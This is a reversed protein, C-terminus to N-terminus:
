LTLVYYQLLISMKLIESKYCENRIRDLYSKIQDLSNRIVCIWGNAYNAIRAFTGQSYGGIYILIYSKQIPKLGIKSDPIHYYQGKFEVINEIWM